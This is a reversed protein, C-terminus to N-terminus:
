TDLTEDWNQGSLDRACGQQSWLCDVIIIVFEHYLM